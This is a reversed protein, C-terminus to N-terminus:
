NDTEPLQIKGSVIDDILGAEAELYLEPYDIEHPSTLTVGENELTGLFESSVFRGQLASEIEAFVRSSIQKQVSALINSKWKEASPSLYWDRNGGIVLTGPYDLTAAGAGLGAKGAVPYIVDAGAKFFIGAVKRAKAANSESGIMRWNATNASLAGLVSIGAQHDDNFREVGARFGAMADLVNKTRASGFTAVYGTKSSAAALYGALYSGQKAAYTLHALNPPLEVLAAPSDDVLVFKTAINADAARVAPAAMNEGVAVVVGCGDNAFTTLTAAINGASSRESFVHKQRVLGLSVVSQKIAYYSSENSGADVLGSADTAICVTMPAPTTTASPTVESSCGTLLFMPLLALALNKSSFM